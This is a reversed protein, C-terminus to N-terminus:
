NDAAALYVVLYSVSRSLAYEDGLFAAHQLFYLFIRSLQSPVRTRKWSRSKEVMALRQAM